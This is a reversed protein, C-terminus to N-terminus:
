RIRELAWLAKDFEPPVFTEIKQLLGDPTEDILLLARSEPNIFQERTAHNLFEVLGTYYGRADLLGCPKRHIGLQAWTVAEIFEEITGLGGPLAIFAESLQAMLAKREHMTEVVRLDKLGTHGLERLMLARPIVGIADGGAALVADAIEGMLGVRGGGFVLGLGRQVLAEGLERAVRRYVPDAGPSSGCFVCVYRV